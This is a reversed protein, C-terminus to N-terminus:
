EEAWEVDAASSARTSASNTGSAARSSTAIDSSTIKGGIKIGGANSASILNELTGKNMAKISFVKDDLKVELKGGIGIDLVTAPSLTSGKTVVEWKGPSVEKKVKDNATQVIYSDAAFVLGTAIFGLLLALIITKKM